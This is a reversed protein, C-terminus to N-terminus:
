ARTTNKIAAIKNTVPWHFGALAWVAILKESVPVPV